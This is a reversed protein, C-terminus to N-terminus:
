LKKTKSKFLLAFIFGFVIAATLGAAVATMGGTIAGILGNEAAGKLAGKALSSGFGMIPVTVGAKAFDEMYSFAGVVELVVGLLMCGVLIRASTVETKNIFIQGILCILGGVSFVKLYTLFIEM